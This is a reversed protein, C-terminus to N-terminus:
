PEGRRKKDNVFQRYHSTVEGSWTGIDQYQKGAQMLELATIREGIDQLVQRISELQLHISAFNDDTSM